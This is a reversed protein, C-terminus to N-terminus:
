NTQSITVVTLPRERAGSDPVGDLRASQNGSHADTHTNILAMRTRLQLPVGLWTTLPAPSGLLALEHSPYPPEGFYSLVFAAEVVYVRQNDLGILM